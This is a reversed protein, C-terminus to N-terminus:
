AVQPQDCSRELQRSARTELARLLSRYLQNASEDWSPSPALRAVAQPDYPTTAASVLAEALAEVKRPPVLLGLAPSTVV